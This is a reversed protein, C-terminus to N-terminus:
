RLPEAGPTTRLRLSVPALQWEDVRVPGCDGRTLTYLPLYHKSEHHPLHGLTLDFSEQCSLTPPKYPGFTSVVDPLFCPCSDCNGAM